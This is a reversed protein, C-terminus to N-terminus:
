GTRGGLNSPMCYNVPCERSDRTAVSRLQIYGDYGSGPCYSVNAVVFDQFDPNGIFVFGQAGILAHLDACTYNRSDIGAAFASSSFAIVAVFMALRKVRCEGSLSTQLAIKTRKPGAHCCSEGTFAARARSSAVLSAAATICFGLLAYNVRFLCLLRLGRHRGRRDPDDAVSRREQTEGRLDTM